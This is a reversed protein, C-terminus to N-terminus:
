TDSIYLGKYVGGKTSYKFGAASMLERLDRPKIPVGAHTMLAKRFVSANVTAGDRKVCTALFTTFGDKRKYEAHKQQHIRIALAWLKKERRKDATAKREEQQRRKQRQLRKQQRQERKQRRVIDEKDKSPTPQADPKCLGALGDVHAAEDMATQLQALGDERSLDFVEHKPDLRLKHLIHFVMSEALRANSYPQLRM